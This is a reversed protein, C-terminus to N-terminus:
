FTPFSIKKLNEFTVIWNQHYPSDLKHGGGRQHYFSHAEKHWLNKVQSNKQDFCKSKRLKVDIYLKADLHILNPFDACFM